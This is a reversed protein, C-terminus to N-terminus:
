DFLRNREMWRLGKEVVKQLGGQIGRAAGMAETRSEREPCMSWSIMWMM